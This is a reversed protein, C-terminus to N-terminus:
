GQQYPHPPQQGQPPYPPQAPPPYAQPQRPVAGPALGAPPDPQWAHSAPEESWVPAAPAAPYAAPYAAPQPTPVGAYVPYPQQGAFPATAARRRRALLLVVGAVAGLLLVGGGGLLAITLWPPGAPSDSAVVQLPLAQSGDGSFVVTRPDDEDVTGTTELVEGPFTFAIRVEGGSVGPAGEAVAPLEGDLTFRGDAHALTMGEGTFDDIRLGAFTFRQGVWDGDEYPEREITVGAPVDELGLVDQADGGESLLEEASQGSMELMERSMAMVYDGSLTDDEHVTVAMDVRFCGALAAVLALATAAAGTRRLSSMRVGDAAGVQAKVCTARDACLARM